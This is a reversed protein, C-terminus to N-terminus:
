IEIYAALQFLPIGGFRLVLIYNGGRISDRLEALSSYRKLKYIVNANVGNQHPYPRGRYTM